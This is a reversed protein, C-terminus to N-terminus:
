TGATVLYFAVIIGMVAEGVYFGTAVMFTDLLRFTKQRENWNKAKAMPELRYKEWWDRAVGGSLIGLTKTVPLYMGLGFATGMGTMLEMFVGIAIGLIFMSYMVKGGMLILAFIAFANAQPAELDLTGHALHYSFFFAALASAIAGPIIGMTAGRVLHMPRTGCYLGVKFEWTIDASLSIASGFVTTGVLAMIIIGSKNPFPFVKDLATFTGVLLLLCLFSTGSVPTTGVEGSVKVAIAGLIFTVTALLAGFVYSQVPPFGGLYFITGVFLITVLVM